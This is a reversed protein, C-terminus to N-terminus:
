AFVGREHVHRVIGSKFRVEAVQLDFNLIISEVILKLRANIKSRIEFVKNEDAVGDLEQLARVENKLDAKQQEIAELIRADLAHLQSKIDALRAENEIALEREVNSVRGKLEKFDRKFNDLMEGIAVQESEVKYRENVLLEVKDEDRMISKIDAEALYSLIM